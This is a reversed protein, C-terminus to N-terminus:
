ASDVYKRITRLTGPNNRFYEALSELRQITSLHVHHEMGETDEFATEDDVGMMSLFEAIVKHRRIVSKAVREGDPTLKM